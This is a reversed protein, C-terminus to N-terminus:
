YVFSPSAWPCLPLKLKITPLIQPMSMCLCVYYSIADELRGFNLISNKIEDNEVSPMLNQIQTGKMDQNYVPHKIKELVRKLNRFRDCIQYPFTVFLPFMNTKYIYKKSFSNYIRQKKHKVFISFQSVFFYTFFTM